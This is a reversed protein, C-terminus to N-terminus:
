SSTSPWVVTDEGMMSVAFVIFPMRMKPRMRRTMKMIRANTPAIPLAPYGKRLAIGMTPYRAARIKRTAVMYKATAKALATFSSLEDSEEPLRPAVHDATKRPDRRNSNPASSM